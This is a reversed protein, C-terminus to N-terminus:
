APTEQESEPQTEAEPEPQTEPPTEPEPEPESEQEPEQEFGPELAVVSAADIIVEGEVGPRLGVNYVVQEPDADQPVQTDITLTEWDEGGSNNVIRSLTRQGDVDFAIFFALKGVDSCKVNLKARLKLGPEPPVSFTQKFTGTREAILALGLAFNGDYAGVPEQTLNLFYKTWEEPVTGTVREFSGNWIRETAAFAIPAEEQKMVASATDLLASSNGASWLKVEFVVNKPDAGPPVKTKINLTEWDEGGSNERWVRKDKGDVKFTISFVVKRAEASKVDVKADLVRGFVSPHISITQKLTTYPSDSGILELALKGSQAEQSSKNYSPFPSVRWGTVINSRQGEFSGNELLEVDHFLATSTISEVHVQDSLQQQQEAPGSDPQKFIDAPNGCGTAFTLLLVPLTVLRILSFGNVEYRGIPQRCCQEM